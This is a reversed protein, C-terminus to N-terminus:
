EITIIQLLHKQINALDVINVKGDRNTDAATLNDGTLVLIQLLHKQVNALDLITIRGDGNVDGRKVTGGTGTGGVTLTCASDATVTLIYSNLYGSESRVPLAVTNQGPNLAFSAEGAYSAGPPVSFDLNTNGSVSFSYSQTYMSFGPVSLATFYYNNKQNSATVSPAPSSPMNQYVPIRLTLPADPNATYFSRLKNGKGLADYINQAYQHTFYPATKVDFDMYYYTDQGVSIYDKAFLKAGGIISASRTNWGQKQAYALGNAIVDDQTSGSAGINFFNYYGSEGSILKSSGNVGQEQIFKAAIIYPSVGSQRAAEMIVSYYSGGYATDNPDSYGNALFTNRCILALGDATQSAPDYSQEAFMYVSNSNLFNRPDLHYAIVERSAAVWAGSTTNWTGSSWNYAGSGMSKLSDSYSQPVLKLKWNAFEGAVADDFALPLNDPVFSWNPYLSHLTRLGDRYSEPFKLLQQEFDPDATEIVLIWDGRIYGVLGNYSIQKWECGDGQATGIIDVYVYSLSGLINTDVSTTPTSRVRVGSGNVYGLASAASVRPPVCILFLLSLVLFVATLRKKRFLETM